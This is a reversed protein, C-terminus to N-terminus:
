TSSKRRFLLRNKVGKWDSKLTNYALQLRSFQNPNEIRSRDLYEQLFVFLISFMLSFGGAFAVIFSRKPRSKREPPVARDLVQITPTDKSEEIKAKEFEATLLDFITEQIKVERFLRAYELSIGPVKDFPIGLVGPTKTSGTGKELKQLQKELEEKRLRLQRVQPSDEVNKSLVNLDLEVLVLQANLDAATQITAITQQDLAMASNKQQFVKLSEEAAALEIKSRDLRGEIFIRSNKARSSSTLRNIQDLKLAVTNAVSAAKERNKDEFAITVIGEDGVSVQLHDGLERTTLELSKLDYYAMLGEAQIVEEAVTRSNAMAAYVDSPTAMFPLAMGADLASLGSLLSSTLGFPRSKEPPLVTTKAQYWNPLLLSIGAIVLCVTIFNLIIFKRYKVLVLLYSGLDISNDEAPRRSHEEKGSNMDLILKDPKM